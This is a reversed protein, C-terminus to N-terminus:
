DSYSNTVTVAIVDDTFVYLYQYNISYSPAKLVADKLLIFSDAGHEEIVKSATSLITGAVYGKLESEDTVQLEDSTQLPTGTIQGAATILVLLKNTGTISIKENGFSMNTALHIASILTKKNM